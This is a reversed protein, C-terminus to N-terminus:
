RYEVDRVLIKVDTFGLSRLFSEMYLSGLEGAKSLIQRDQAWNVMRKEALRRAEKELNPDPKVLFGTERVYVYTKDNDVRSYLIEPPPLIFSVTTGQVVIDSENVKTLDFGAVVEGEAILLLKDTGFVQQWIDSPEKELDVVTQM